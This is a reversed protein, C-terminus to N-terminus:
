PSSPFQLKVPIGTESQIYTEAAEEVPNNPWWYGTIVGILLAATLKIVSLLKTSM